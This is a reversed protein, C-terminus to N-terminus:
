RYRKETYSRKRVMEIGTHTRIHAKLHSSKTYSKECGTFMCPYLRRKRKQGDELKTADSTASKEVEQEAPSTM